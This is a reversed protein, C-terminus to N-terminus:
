FLIFYVRSLFDSWLNLIKLYNSIYMSFVYVVIYVYVYSTFNNKM